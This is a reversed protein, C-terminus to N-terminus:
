SFHSDSRWVQFVALSHIRARDLASHPRQQNYDNRWKDLKSRADALDFFVEVNLCEDRLWAM